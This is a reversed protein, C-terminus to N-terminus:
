VLAEIPIQATGDGSLPYVINTNPTTLHVTISQGKTIAGVTASMLKLNTLNRFFIASSTLLNNADSTSM